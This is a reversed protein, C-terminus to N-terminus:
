LVHKTRCLANQQHWLCEGRSAGLKRLVGAVLWWTVMRMADIPACVFGSLLMMGVLGAVIIHNKTQSNDWQKTKMRQNKKWLLGEHMNRKRQLTNARKKHRRVCKKKREDGDSPSKQKSIWIVFLHLILCSYLMWTVSKRTKTTWGVVEGRKQKRSVTGGVTFIAFKCQATAM